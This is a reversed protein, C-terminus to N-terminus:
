EDSEIELDIVRYERGAITKTSKGTVRYKLGPPLLVEEEGQNLSLPDIYAGKKGAAIHLMVDARGSWGAAFESSRSFSQLQNGVDLSQGVEAREWWANANASRKTPARWIEGTYEGIGPFSSVTLSAFQRDELTGGGERMRQNIPAYGSGTYYRVAALSETTSTYGQEGKIREVNAAEDPYVHSGYLKSLLARQATKSELFLAIEDKREGRPPRYPLDLGAKHFAAPQKQKLQELTLHKGKDSYFKDLPLEGTRFMAGKAKGLIEDQRTASQKKLWEGYTMDAPVEGDMSARTSPNFEGIDVGGLEKWSKTIPVSTSRCNWHLAGPGGLWPVTHGIPKHAADNTYHLGDRLRCGESTRGDLTSVWGVAKVLDANAKMFRNRTVGATHSIATRVVAEANRRDIEIVGDSYGKARTGRVRQVIQSITQNEVYGMRVTDRIRAMRDAEISAAWEKLLRGQFPRAMAAAYVQEVSVTAVDVQAIIQPPITAHFLQFQYGSEYEVLKQMETALEVSVVQYAQANLAQVSVLLQQLREVTFSDPSMTELSSTLQAILDPDVRNLLAIIRRVVDNSYYHMDIAHHISADSLHENVTAAM